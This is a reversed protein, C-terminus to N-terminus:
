AAFHIIESIGYKTILSAVRRQDGIDAAFVPVGAPTAWEFGSSFDDIVVPQEGRDALEYVMHSGIYGAGGTVLIAMAIAEPPRIQFKPVFSGEPMNHFGRGLIVSSTRQPNTGSQAPHRRIRHLGATGASPLATQTKIRRKFAENLREIV